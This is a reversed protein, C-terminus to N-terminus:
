CKPEIRPLPKNVLEPPLPKIVCFCGLVVIICTDTKRLSYVDEYSDVLYGDIDIAELLSLEACCTEENLKELRFYPTAIGKYYVMFPKQSDINFLMFPITDMKRSKKIFKLGQERETLIKQEKQLIKMALCICSIKDM